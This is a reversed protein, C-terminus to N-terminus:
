CVKNEFDGAINKRIVELLSERWYNSNASFAFTIPDFRPQRRLDKRSEGPKGEFMTTVDLLMNRKCFIIQEM